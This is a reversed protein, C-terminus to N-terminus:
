TKKLLKHIKKDIISNGFYYMTINNSVFEM